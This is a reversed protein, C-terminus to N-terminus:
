ECSRVSRNSKLTRCSIACPPSLLTCNDGPEWGSPRPVITAAFNARLQAAHSSDVGDCVQIAPKTHWADGLDNCAVASQGLHANRRRLSFSLHVQVARVHSGPLGQAALFHEKDARPRVPLIAASNTATHWNAKGPKSLLRVIGIRRRMAERAGFRPLELRDHLVPVRNGHAHESFAILTRLPPPGGVKTQHMTSGETSLQAQLKQQWIGPFSRQPELFSQMRIVSHSMDLFDAHLTQLSHMIDILGVPILLLPLLTFDRNHGLSIAYVQVSLLCDLQLVRDEITASAKFFLM